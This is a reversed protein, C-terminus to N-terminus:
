LRPDLLIAARLIVNTEDDTVGYVHAITDTMSTMKTVERSCGWKGTGTNGKNGSGVQEPEEEAQDTLPSLNTLKGTM